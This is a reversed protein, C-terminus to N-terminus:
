SHADPRSIQMTAPNRIFSRDGERHCMRRHWVSPSSAATALSEQRAPSGGLVSRRFQTRQGRLALRLRAARRAASGGLPRAASGVRLAYCIPCPVDYCLPGPRGRAAPQQSSSSSSAAERAGSEVSLVPSRDSLFENQRCRNEVSHACAALSMQM